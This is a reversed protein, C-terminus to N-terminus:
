IRMTLSMMMMLLEIGGGAMAVLHPQSIITRLINEHFCFTDGM